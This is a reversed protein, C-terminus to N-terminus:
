GFTFAYGEIGPDFHLELTHDGARPLDVLRYLRQASITAAGGRVDEGADAAAIPKGDLLVELKRADATPASCSSSEVRRSACRRDDGGQGRDGGRRGVEWVGGYAFQNGSWRRPM